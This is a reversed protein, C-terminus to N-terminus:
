LRVTFDDPGRKSAAEQAKKVAERYAPNNNMEVVHAAKGKTPDQAMKAAVKRAASTAEENDAVQMAAEAVNKPKASIKGVSTAGERAHLWANDMESMSVGNVKDLYAKDEPSLNPDYKQRMPKTAEVADEAVNAVDDAKGAVDDVKSAIAEAAESVPASAAMRKKIGARVVDLLKRGPAQALENTSALFAGVPGGIKAGILAGVGKPVIKEASESMLWPTVKDVAKGALTGVGKATGIAGPIAASAAGGLMSKAGELDSEGTGRAFAGMMQGPTSSAFQAAKAVYPSLGTAGGLGGTAASMLLSGSLNSVEQAGPSYSAQEARERRFTDRASDYDGGALSAGLGFAEDRFGFGAADALGTGVNKAADVLSEAAMGVPSTTPNRTGAWHAMAGLRNGPHAGGKPQVQQAPPKQNQSSASAPATADGGESEGAVGAIEDLDRFDGM